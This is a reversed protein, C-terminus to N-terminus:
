GIVPGVPRILFMVRNSARRAKNPSNRSGAEQKRSGQQRSGAGQERSGRKMSGQKGAERSHVGATRLGSARERRAASAARLVGESRALPPYPPHPVGPVHGPPMDRPYGM